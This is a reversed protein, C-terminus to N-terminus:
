HSFGVHLGELYATHLLEHVFIVVINEGLIGGFVHCATRKDVVTCLNDSEELMALIAFYIGRIGLQGVVDLCISERHVVGYQAGASDARCQGLFLFFGQEGHHHCALRYVRQFSLGVDVVEDFTEGCGGFAVGVFGYAIHICSFICFGVLHHLSGNLTGGLFVLCVRFVGLDDQLLLDIMGVTGIRCPCEVFGKFLCSFGLSDIREVDIPM